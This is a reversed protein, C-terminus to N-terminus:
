SIGAIGRENMPGGFDVADEGPVGGGGDHDVGVGPCSRGPTCHTSCWATICRSMGRGGRSDVWDVGMSMDHRVSPYLLVICYNSISIKPIPQQGTTTM